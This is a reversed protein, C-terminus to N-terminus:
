RELWCGPANRNTRWKWPFQPAREQVNTPFGNSRDPLRLYRDLLIRVSLMAEHGFGANHCYARQAPRRDVEEHFKAGACQYLGTRCRWPM